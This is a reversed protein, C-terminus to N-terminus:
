EECQLYQSPIIGTTDSSGQMYYGLNYNQADIQLSFAFDSSPNSAIHRIEYTDNENIVFDFCDGDQLNFFTGGAGPLSGNVFIGLHVANASGSLFRVCITITCEEVVEDVPCTFTYNQYTVANSGAPISYKTKGDQIQINGKTGTLLQTTVNYSECSNIMFTYTTQNTVVQSFVVTGSSDVITVQATAGSTTSSLELTIECDECAALADTKNFNVSEANILIGESDLLQQNRFQSEIREELTQLEPNTSDDEKQCSSFVLTFALIAYIIKKM